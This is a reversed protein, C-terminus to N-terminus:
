FVGDTPKAASFDIQLGRGTFFGPFDADLTMVDISELVYSETKPPLYSSVQSRHLEQSMPSIRRPELTSSNTPWPLPKPTWRTASRMSTPLTSSHARLHTPKSTQLAM